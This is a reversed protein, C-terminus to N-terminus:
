AASLDHRRKRQLAPVMRLALLVLIISLYILPETVDAKVSMTFHIAAMIGAGYVLRHLAQWRRGGLRRVMKNTSTVALALLILFTAFGLMIFPRKAVDKWIDHLNFFQDVGAYTLVHLLAYFFAYLGIMRRYRMITKIGSLRMFPTVALALCLFRIAWLGTFHIGEKIPNAGLGGSLVLWVLWAAPVLGIVFLVAKWPDRRRM